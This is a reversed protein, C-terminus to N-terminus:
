KVTRRPYIRRAMKKVYEGLTPRSQVHSRRLIESRFQLDLEIVEPGKLGNATDLEFVPVNSLFKNPQMTHTGSNDFGINTVLNKAPTISVGDYYLRAYHWQYDWADFNKNVVADYISDFDPYFSTVRAKHLPDITPWSTLSYDFLKWARRWGAWGWNGGDSFFYDYQHSQWDGCYNFGSIALVRETNRYQELLIRCFEFFSDSPLCDDEFIIGEEVQSFFWTIGEALGHGTGRNEERFLTTLECPWDVGDTIVARTKRCSAEDDQRGPRPGDAVVFLRSPRARRIRDFVRATHDPRNFILLLIPTELM